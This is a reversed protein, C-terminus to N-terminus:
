EICQDDWPKATWWPQGTHNVMYNTTRTWHHTRQVHDRSWWPHQSGITAHHHGIINLVLLQLISGPLHCGVSYSIYFVHCKPNPSVFLYHFRLFGSFSDQAMRIFIGVLLANQISSGSSGHLHKVCISRIWQNFFIGKGVLCLLKQSQNVLSCVTLLDMFTFM